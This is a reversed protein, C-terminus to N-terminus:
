CEGTTQAVKVLGRRFISKLRLKMNFNKAGGTVSILLNPDDLGWHQTMLQYIVSSPTDQSVRVYQLPITLQHPCKAPSVALSGYLACPCRVPYLSLMKCPLSVLCPVSLSGQLTQHPTGSLITTGKVRLM